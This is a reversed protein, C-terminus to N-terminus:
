KKKGLFNVKSEYKGNGVPILNRIASFVFDIGQKKCLEYLSDHIIGNPPVFASATKNFTNKFLNLGDAIVEEHLELEAHTQFDFAAQYSIGIPKLNNFGWVGHDFACMTQPDNQKLMELWSHINLHERGHFQPSILGLKIGEMWYGLINQNPYYRDYTATSTEYVYKEFKAERICQFDPNALLAFATIVPYSGNVAQHKLLVDFLAEFDESTELSDFRNYRYSDGSELDIGISKLKDYVKLSPMRISGWDDSEFVILKKRAKWGPISLLERKIKNLGLM